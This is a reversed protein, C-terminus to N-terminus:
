HKSKGVPPESLTIRVITTRDLSRKIAEDFHNMYAPLFRKCILRLAEIKENNDNVISATGIAIASNYYETFNNKEEEYHPSCKSVASLSVTPNTLISDIKDGEDACHFYFTTEDRRVVSLPVGYPTGDPRVMSVTIYPAKDFVEFTFQTSQQRSAKRM